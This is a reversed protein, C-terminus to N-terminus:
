STGDRGEFQVTVGLQASGSASPHSRCVAEQPWAAAGDTMEFRGIGKLGINQGEGRYYCWERFGDISVATQRVIVIDLSVGCCRGGDASKYAASRRRRIPQFRSFQLCM